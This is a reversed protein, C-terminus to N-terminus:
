PPAAAAEYRIFRKRFRYERSRDARALGKKILHANLHTRNTLYLYGTVGDADAEAADDTQFFVRHGKTAARLFEAADHARRSEVAVGLLRVTGGSDLRVRDAGLVEAVKFTPPGPTEAENRKRPASVEAQPSAHDEPKLAYPLAEIRRAFDTTPAAPAVFTLEGETERLLPCENFRAEIIDRYTPNIEYGISHRGLNRAAVATTGSGVFPDLVTDSVFTFMKILRRPLEEPFPAAHAHQREGPVTWHGYFFTNWEEKTLRSAAKVEPTPKPAKGPKKFLLIFEYDIKIIGNRPYPYSGMISAGGTTRCTTVKQWIIAGMSVLGLAQCAKVIETRIPIVQYTGYHKARAFQDGVNICLRCGPHLVRACEQWVLALHNVYQGYTDHFGIQGDHGYDKIQWYPPSTVVLHVSADAVESMRRCDGIVIKHTTSTSM